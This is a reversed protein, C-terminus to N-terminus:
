NTNMGLSERKAELEGGKVGPRPIFAPGMICCPMLPDRKQNACSIEYYCGIPKRQKMRKNM